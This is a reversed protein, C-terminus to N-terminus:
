RQGGVAHQTAQERRPARRDRNDRRPADFPARADYAAIRRDPDRSCVAGCNACVEDHEAGDDALVWEHICQGMYRTVYPVHADIAVSRIM